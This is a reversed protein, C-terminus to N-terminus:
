EKDYSQRIRIFLIIIKDYKLFQNKMKFKVTPIDIVKMNLIFWYDTFLSRSGPPHSQMKYKRYFSCTKMILRPKEGRRTSRTQPKRGRQGPLRAQLHNQKKSKSFSKLLTLWWDTFNFKESLINQLKTSYLWVFFPIARLKFTRIILENM